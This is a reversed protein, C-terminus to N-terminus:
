NGRVVIKKTSRTFKVEYFEFFGVQGLIGSYWGAKECFGITRPVYFQMGGNIKIKVNPHYYVDMTGGGIGHTTILEGGQPDEIGLAEAVEFNFFTSDAGTDALGEFTYEEDGFKLVVPLIPRYIGQSDHNKYKFQYAPM